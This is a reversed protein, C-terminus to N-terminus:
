LDNTKRTAQILLRVKETGYAIDERELHVTIDAWKTLAGEDGAHVVAAHLSPFEISPADASWFQVSCPTSAYDSLVKYPDFTM